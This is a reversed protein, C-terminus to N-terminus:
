DEGEDAERPDEKTSLAQVVGPQDNAAGERGAPRVRLNREQHRDQDQADARVLEQEGLGRERAFEQLRRRHADPQDGGHNDIEHDDGM